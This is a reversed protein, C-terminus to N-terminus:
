APSPCSTRSAAPQDTTAQCAWPPYPFLLGRPLALAERSRSQNLAWTPAEAGGNFSASGDLSTTAHTAGCLLSCTPSGLGAFPCSSTSCSPQCSPGCRGAVGANS